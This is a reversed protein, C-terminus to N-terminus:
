ATAVIVEGEWVGDRASHVSPVFRRGRAVLLMLRPTESPVFRRGAFIEGTEADSAWIGDISDPASVPATIVVSVQGTPRGPSIQVLPMHPLAGQNKPGDGLARLEDFLQSRRTSGYQAAVAGLSVVLAPSWGLPLGARFGDPDYFQKTLSNGDLAERRSVTKKTGM